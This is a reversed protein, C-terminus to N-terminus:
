NLTINIIILHKVKKIGVSLEKVSVERSELQNSWDSLDGMMFTIENGGEKFLLLADEM